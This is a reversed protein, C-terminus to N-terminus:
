SAPSEEGRCRCDGEWGLRFREKLVEPIGWRWELHRLIQGRGWSLETCIVALRAALLAESAESYNV